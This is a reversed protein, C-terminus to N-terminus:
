CHPVHTDEGNLLTRVAAPSYGVCRGLVKVPRLVGKREWLQLCRSSRNFLARVEKRTLLREPAPEKAGKAKTAALFAQRDEPTVTPDSSLVAKLALKTTELM